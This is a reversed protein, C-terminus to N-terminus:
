LIRSRFINNFQQFILKGQQTSNGSLWYAEWCLNFCCVGPCCNQWFCNERFCISSHSISPCSDSQIYLAQLLSNSMFNFRWQCGSKHTLRYIFNLATSLTPLFPLCCTKNCVHPIYRLMWFDWSNSKNTQQEM